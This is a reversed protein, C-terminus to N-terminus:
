DCWENTCWGRELWTKWLRSLTPHKEQQCVCRRTMNSDEEDQAMDGLLYGREKNGKRVAFLRVIRKVPLDGSGFWVEDRSATILTAGERKTVPMSSQVSDKAEM